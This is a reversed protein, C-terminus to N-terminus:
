SIHRDLMIPDIYPIIVLYILYSYVVITIGRM